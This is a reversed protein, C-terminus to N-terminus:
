FKDSVLISFLIVPIDKFLGLIGVMPVCISRSSDFYLIGNAKTPPFGCVGLVGFINGRLLGSLATM